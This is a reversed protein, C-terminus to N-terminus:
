IPISWILSIGGVMHGQPIARVIFPLRLADVADSESEIETTLSTARFVGGSHALGTHPQPILCWGAPIKEGTIEDVIAESYVRRCIWIPYFDPSIRIAIAPGLLWGILLGPLGGVIVGAIGAFIWDLFLGFHLLATLVGIGSLCLGLAGGVRFPQPAPTYRCAPDMNAFVVEAPVHAAWILKRGYTDLVYVTEQRRLLDSKARTLATPIGTLEASWQKTISAM